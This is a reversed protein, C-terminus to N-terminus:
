SIAIPGTTGTAKWGGGTAKVVYTSWQACLGGCWLSNSVEVRSGSGDIPGASLIAAFKGDGGDMRQDAIRHADAGSVFTVPPLGRLRARLGARVHKSFPETIKWMDRSSTGNAVVGSVIFLRDFPSPGGGFTHDKTVLRRFVAAYVGISRREAASVPSVTPLNQGRERREPRTGAQETCGVLLLGMLLLWAIKNM